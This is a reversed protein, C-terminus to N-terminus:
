TPNPPHPDLDVKPKVLPKNAGRRGGEAGGGWFLFLDMGDTTICTQEQIYEGWIHREEEGGKGKLM